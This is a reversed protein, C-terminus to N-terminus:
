RSKDARVPHMGAGTISRISAIRIATPSRTACYRNGQCVVGFRGRCFVGGDCILYLAGCLCCAFFTNVHEIILRYNYGRYLSLAICFMELNIAATIPKAKSTM